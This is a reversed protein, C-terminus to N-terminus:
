YLRSGSNVTCARAPLGAPSASHGSSELFFLGARRTGFGTARLVQLSVRLLRDVKEGSGVCRLILMRVDSLNAPLTAMM